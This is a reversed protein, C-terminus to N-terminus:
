RCPHPGAAAPTLHHPTTCMRCPEPPLWHNRLADLWRDATRWWEPAYTGGFEQQGGSMRAELRPARDLIPGMAHECGLPEGSAPSDTVFAHTNPAPTLGLPDPSLYAGTEPDYYRRGDYHLGTERDHYQGPFRLPTTAADRQWSARGWITHRQNGVLVGDASVLETPTGGLDTVLSYFEEGITRADSDAGVVTRSTQTLPIGSDNRHSWTITVRVDGRRDEQEVLLEGDWSFRTQELLEGDPSHHRKGIRRDLPDYQYSWKSGDPLTVAHLRSDADWVYRWTEPDGSKPTRIRTAVRGTADYRYNMTGARTTCTGVTERSGQASMEPTEAGPDAASSQQVANTINGAPDYDYQELPLDGGDTVATVRGASDLQFARDGALLDEVETVLGDPGYTYARRQLLPVSPGDSGSSVAPGTLSQIALRGLRDWEQALHAAGPLDRRIERGAPDYGFRLERGATVLAAPNGGADYEWTTEVGSPTVRSTTRGAADYTRAVEHGNCNESVVRGHSDRVLVLDVDDNKARVLRGAPDYDFTTVTGDANHSSSLKGLPNYSYSAEHGSANVRHVLHGAADYWYQTTAGNYDTQASLRGASDNEYQWELGGHTVSTLRCNHDYEFETGAGGPWAISVLRDFAGYTYATVAKTASIRQLLNEESDWVWSQTSSDPLTLSIPLGDTTWTHTTTGGDSGVVRVVRGLQDREYRITEGSPETVKVPMGASDCEMTTVAGDAGTIRALHGRSDYDYRVVSGDPATLETLNGNRDFSRLWVSGEPGTIRAPLCADDPEVRSEGGDPDTISVLNGRDDYTHRTVMGLPDVRVTVRGREDYETRATKGIPDTIAAIRASETIAFSTVDGNTNTWCTRGPEYTFVGSLDGNPGDGSVCRGESDFTYHYSYGNRDIWATIRGADDYDFRRPLESSNVVGSLNGSDDYEFRRLAIDDGGDRGALTLATVRDDALTVVIHYGCSHVIDRPRGATDHGFTIEHGVRDTISTLPLEDNEYGARREYKWTHGRQPDSVAYSGDPNQRLPWAPGTTPIAPLDDAGPVIWSLLEGGAFRAEIRGATIRLRQDLTSMWSRGFWRGTRFSSRHTREFVLPLVGPLTVDTEALVVDGTAVDVM